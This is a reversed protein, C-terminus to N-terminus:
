KDGLTKHFDEVIEKVESSTEPEPEEPEAKPEPEEFLTRLKYGYFIKVSNGPLAETFETSVDAVEDSNLKDAIKNKEM